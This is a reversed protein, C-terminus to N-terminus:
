EQIFPAVKPSSPVSACLARTLQFGRPTLDACAPWEFARRAVLASAAVVSRVAAFTLMPFDRMRHFPM